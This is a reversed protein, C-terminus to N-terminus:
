PQSLHRSDFPPAIAVPKYCSDDAAANYWPRFATNYADSYKLTSKLYGDVNDRAHRSVHGDCNQNSSTEGFIMRNGSLGRWSLFIWVGNYLSQATSTADLTLSCSGDAQELCVHAHMNTATPQSYHKPLSIMGTTAGGCALRNNFSFGAPLGFLGYVQDGLSGAFAGALNSTHIIQASDGWVSPCDFGQSSPRSIPVSFTARSGTFGRANMLERIKGVVDTGNPDEASPHKNDYILRAYVTFNLPNVENQLEFDGIQMGAGNPGAEYLVADILNFFPQWGWFYPNANATQYGSNVGQCDPYGADSAPPPLPHSTNLFGFPVWKLFKLKIGGTGCEFQDAYPPTGPAIMGTGSGWDEVLVPTPTVRQIGYSKLDTLFARLKSRWTALVNGNSDWATSYFGGTLGFQFRVGTVGQDIFNETRYYPQGYADRSFLSKICNQVTWTTPCNRLAATGNARVNALFYNDIPIAGLNTELVTPKMGKGMVGDVIYFAGPGRKVGYGAPPTVDPPLPSSPRFYGIPSEPNHANPGVYERVKQIYKWYTTGSGADYPFYDNCSFDTPCAINNNIVGSDVIQRARVTFVAIMYNQVPWDPCYVTSSTCGGTIQLEQMEQIYRFFPHYVPVDTFHPTADVTFNEPNGTKAWYVARILFVALQGRTMVIDPCYEVSSYCGTTIQREGMINVADYYPLAPGVDVFLQQHQQAVLLTATGALALRLSVSAIASLSM